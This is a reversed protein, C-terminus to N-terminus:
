IGLGELTVNMIIKTAYFHHAGFYGLFFFLLMTVIYSRDSSYDM